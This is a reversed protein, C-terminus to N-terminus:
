LKILDCLRFSKTAKTYRIMKCFVLSCVYVFEWSFSATVFHPIIMQNLIDCVIYPM